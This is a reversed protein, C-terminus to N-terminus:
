EHNSATEEAGGLTTGWAALARLRGLGRPSFGWVVKSAGERLRALLTTMRKLAHGRPLGSSWTRCLCVAFGLACFCRQHRELGSGMRTYEHNSATEEAGGLATGWAALARLRGLGRPSFGWVVKSAGERLRALLTTMRKLAHGRPLGSSWTRCLCVAFGLACFCRQHRELGRGM